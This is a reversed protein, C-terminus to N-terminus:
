NKHDSNTKVMTKLMAHFNLNYQNSSYIKLIKRDAFGAEKPNSDSYQSSGRTCM